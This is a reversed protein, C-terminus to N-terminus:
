AEASSGARRRLAELDVVVLSQGDVEVYGGQVFHSLVQNISRRSGGMRAALDSQTTKFDLSVPGPSGAGERDIMRLLLGAVRSPLDLFALDAAQDATRRVLAGTSRLLSQAVGPDGTMLSLVSTRHLTLVRTSELAVVSVARPGGDVLALEGFVDPPGLTAVVLDSGDEQARVARVRGSLIAFLEDGAEGQRFLFHGQPFIRQRASAALRLLAEPELEALLPSAALLAATEELKM